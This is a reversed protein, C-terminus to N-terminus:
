RTRLAGLGVDERIVAEGKESRVQLSVQPEASAWDVEIVGFNPAFYVCGVRHENLENMFGRPQNLASSTLDYLPYPAGGAASGGAGPRICSLEASHRDGSIIVVGAAGTTRVLDIFRQRERPFNGWTEFGHAASAFQISSAVIRLEAPTRLQEELWKWQAEGLVTANADDSPVYRHATGLGAAPRTTAKMLPSRFYRTDLLIVQVRKGAPGFVKADYVGERTRRASDAPEGFFDLFEKQSERKRPYEVGADNKGYDHDDWTALIPCIARVSRYGPEDGLQGYKRRLVAMDESDGYINDGIFLFLDPKTEVIPRWIPQPQGQKACSGFVLRSVVDSSLRTAAPQPAAAQTAASPSAAPQAWATAAAFSIAAARFLGIIRQM